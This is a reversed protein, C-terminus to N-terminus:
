LARNSLFGSCTKPLNECIVQAESIIGDIVDRATPIDEILGIIQGCALPSADYDGEFVLKCRNEGIIWPLIKDIGAGESELRLVEQAAKNNITRHTNKISREILVTENEQMKLLRERVTPHLPSEKTLMFRTGMVVGEAGWALASVFGRANGIGGGAIVPVKILDTAKQVLIMTSVEEMGVNGGNEYGVIIVADAGVQEAKCSHRVTASKHLVKVGGDHLRPIVGEPSRASTEVVPVREELIVKIFEDNAVVRRTPNLSLNVGFPKETLEKTKLISERLEEEDRCNASVLIGLGGANSVSATLEPCSIWQMGSQIIPYKIGLMETLRNNFM